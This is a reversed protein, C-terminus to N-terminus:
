ARFAKLTVLATTEDEYTVELTINSAQDAPIETEPANSFSLGGSDTGTAPASTDRTRPFAELLKAAVNERPMRFEATYGRDMWGGDDMCKEDTAGEPMRGGAFATAKKCSAKHPEFVKGSMVEHVALGIWVLPALALATVIGRTVWKRTRSRPPREAEAGAPYALHKPAATSESTDAM